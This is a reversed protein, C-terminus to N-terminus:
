DSFTAFPPSGCIKIYVARADNNCGHPKCAGCSPKVCWRLHEVIWRRTLSLKTHCFEEVTFDRIDGPSPVDILLPRTKHAIRGNDFCDVYCPPFLRYPIKGPRGWKDHEHNRPHNTNAIAITSMTTNSYPLAMAQIALGFALISTLVRLMM